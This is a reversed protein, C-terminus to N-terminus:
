FSPVLWVPALGGSLAAPVANRVPQGWRARALAAKYM